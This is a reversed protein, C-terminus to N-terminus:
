KVFTLTCPRTETRTGTGRSGDFRVDARYAYASGKNMQNSTYRPDGTMGHADISANGDPEIKGSLTLSSPQGPTGFQGALVADKV